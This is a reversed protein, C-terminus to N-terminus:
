LKKLDFDHVNNGEEVKVSKTVSHEVPEKESLKVETGEGGEGEENSPAPLGTTIKVKHSGIYAGPTEKNYQLTFKGSSDTTASSPGANAEEPYFEVFANAVAKGDDTITGTVSATKPKDAVSGCGAFTLCLLFSILLTIYSPHNTIRMLSYKRSLLDFLVGEGFPLLTYVNTM